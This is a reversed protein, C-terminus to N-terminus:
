SEGEKANAILVVVLLAIILGHAITINRLEAQQVTITECSENTTRWVLAAPVPLSEAPLLLSGGGDLTTSLSTSAAVEPEAEEVLPTIGDVSTAASEVSVPLATTAAAAASANADAAASFNAFSCPGEHALFGFCYVSDFILFVLWFYFTLCAVVAFLIRKKGDPKRNSWSFFPPFLTVLFFILEVCLVAVLVRNYDKIFACVGAGAGGPCTNYITQKLPRTLLEKM